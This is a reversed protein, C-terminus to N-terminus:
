VNLYVTCAEKFQVKKSNNHPGSNLKTCVIYIYQSYTGVKYSKDGTSFRGFFICIPTPLNSHLAGFFIFCHNVCICIFGQFIYLFM